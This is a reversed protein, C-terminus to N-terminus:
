KTVHIHNTKDISRAKKAYLEATQISKQILEKMKKM